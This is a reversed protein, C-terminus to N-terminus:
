SQPPTNTGKNRDLRYHASPFPFYCETVDINYSMVSFFTGSTRLKKQLSNAIKKQLGNLIANGVSYIEQFSLLFSM